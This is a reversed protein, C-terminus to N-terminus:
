VVDEILLKSKVNLYNDENSMPIVQYLTKLEEQVSIKRELNPIPEILRQEEEGMKHEIVDFN